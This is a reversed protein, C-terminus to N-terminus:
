QLLKLQDHLTILILEGSKARRKFLTLNIGLDPNLMPSQFGPHVKMIQLGTITPRM